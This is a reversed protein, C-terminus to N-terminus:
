RFIKLRIEPLKERGSRDRRRLLQRQFQRRTILFPKGKQQYFQQDNKKKLGGSQGALKRRVWFVSRAGRVAFLYGLICHEIKRLVTLQKLYDPDILAFDIEQNPDGSQRSEFVVFFGIPKDAIRDGVMLFEVAEPRRERTSLDPLTSREIHDQSPPQSFGFIRYIEDKEFWEGLLTIEQPNPWRLEINDCSIKAFGTQRHLRLPVYDIKDFNYDADVALEQEPM